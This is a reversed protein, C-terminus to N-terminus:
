SCIIYIIYLVRVDISEAGPIDVLSAEILETLVYMLRIYVSHMLYLNGM